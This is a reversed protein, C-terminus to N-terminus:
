PAYCEGVLWLSVLEPNTEATDLTYAQCDAHAVGISHGIQKLEYAVLLAGLSMLKSSLASLAVKCGGLLKFVSGYHLVTARIRRYVEFPNNEAAHLFERPDLRLEDFLMQRYQIVIDDARRPNRSPSPLVPCVEDPKVLDIIRDFQTLRDEGLLPIWVKPTQTAEEDFGGGFSALFEAKEDVGEERIRADLDPDEAVTVHLNVPSAGQGGNADLIYLIRALLPFYVSRPIASIDVIIDTYGEFDSASSFLDRANQSSVRRGESSWCQVMRVNLAGRGQAASTLEAWNRDVLAQHAGAPSAAGERFDLAIVDRVGKGGVGLLHRPGACMRPDFGRGLILLLSRENCGLHNEWFSRFRENGNGGRVLVYDQWRPRSENANESM